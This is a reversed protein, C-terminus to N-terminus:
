HDPTDDADQRSDRRLARKRELLRGTTVGPGHEAGPGARGEGPAARPIEVPPLEGAALLPDFDYAESDLRGPPSTGTPTLEGSAEPSTRGPARRMTETSGDPAGKVELLRRLVQSRAAQRRRLVRAVAASLWASVKLWEEQGIMLRRVAVDLPLLLAAIWLLLRSIDVSARPMVAPRAFAGGPDELQKGGTQQALGALLSPNPRTDAYDPPYAVAFGASQRAHLGGAGTANLGVLYSGVSAADVTAEYRGPATQELAVEQRGGAPGDVNARVELGNVPEGDERVAEAVIRARDATREVRPHLLASAPDRLSWRVAQSWFKPFGPWQLWPAAWHNKADSTFAFSRGLGYQWLALLPDRKHTLLPTQALPKPTTAVYGFLPPASGWDLGATVASAAAPQARFHEEVLVPKAITLAERTFIKKIDRARETLYFKGKGARAVDKLFPVDPGDGFAVATTTIREKAAEAAITVSGNPEDCDGGDALIIVHRVATGEKRMLEYAAALSSYVYIGGGCPELSRVDRSAASKNGLPQMPAVMTPRPDSAMVGFHDQPQLLDVIGIAGEAALKIKEVGDEVMGMSGSTDVIVIVSAAPFARQKTVDMSVPLAEEVPTQYYGGAGFSNEGGLMGLGVGLDRTGDRLMALQRPDMRYAPLNSLVVSDYRELQTHSTPLAEAGGVSVGIRQLQLARALAAADAPQEDVVLVQPEGRVRVFGAGRDNEKLGTVSATAGARAGEVLVEVKHFGPDAIDVPIDTSSTGAPLTLQQRRVPRGDVLLTARADQPSTAELTVRASFAEGRRVDAPVSIDRVLTDTTARSLLPVVDVAIHNAQALAMERAAAGLNENGDSLLVIKGAAGPPLLGMGLRMAAAIDTYSGDLKVTRRVDEPRRLLETEVTPTRGFFVLVARDAARRRAMSSRVFALAREQEAPAVSDSADVLFVVVMDRSSRRFQAGALALLLAALILCRGVWAAWLRGGRLGAYSRRAAQWLLLAAVPALLLWEPRSFALWM